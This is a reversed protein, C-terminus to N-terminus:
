ILDLRLRRSEEVFLNMRAIPDKPNIRPHPQEPNALRPAEDRLYCRTMAAYPADDQMSWILLERAEQRQQPLHTWILLLHNIQVLWWSREAELPSRNLGILGITKKGRETKPLAVYGVFELHENPEETAPDILCPQGECDPFHAWKKSNCWGCSPLWNAWEFVLAPFHQKPRYHEIQLASTSAPNSECFACKGHFSHYLVEADQRIEKRVKTWFASITLTSDHSHETQFRENWSQSRVDFGDPKPGRDVRIM